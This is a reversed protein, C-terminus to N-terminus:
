WFGNGMGGYYPAGFGPAGYGWGGYNMVGYGFGGYGLGGYGLGGYGIGSYGGIPTMPFGFNTRYMVLQNNFINQRVLNQEMAGQLLRRDYERKLHDRYAELQQLNLKAQDQAVQDLAVQGQAAQNAADAPQKETPQRAARDRRAAREKYVETLTTLQQENMGGLMREVDAAKKTDFSADVILQALLWNRMEEASKPANAIPLEAAPAPPVDAAAQGFFALSVLFAHM